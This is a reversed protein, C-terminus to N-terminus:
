GEKEGIEKRPNESKMGKRRNGESLLKLNATFSFSHIYPGQFSEAEGVECIGVRKGSLRLM